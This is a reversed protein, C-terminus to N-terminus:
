TRQVTCPATIRHVVLLCPVSRCPILLRCNDLDIQLDSVHLLVQPCAVCQKFAELPGTGVPCAHASLAAAAASCWLPWSRCDVLSYAWAFVHWHWLTSDSPQVQAPADWRSPVSRGGATRGCCAGRMTQQSTCSQSCSCSAHMHALKCMSTHQKTGPEPLGLLMWCGYRVTGQRRWVARACM